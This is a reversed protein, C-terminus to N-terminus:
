MNEPVAYGSETLASSFLDLGGLGGHGDSSFYLTGNEGIYPFVENGQTNIKPGLNEPEGWTDGEKKCVYLDMGGYGSKM